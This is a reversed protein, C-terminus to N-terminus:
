MRWRGNEYFVSPTSARHADPEGDKGRAVVPNNPHKEPRVMELKLGRTAEISVDDFAFLVDQKGDLHNVVEQGRAGFSAVSPLTSAVAVIVISATRM